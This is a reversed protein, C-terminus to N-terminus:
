QGFYQEMESGVKESPVISCKLTANKTPGRVRQIRELEVTARKCSKVCEKAM